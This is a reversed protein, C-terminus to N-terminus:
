ARFEKVREYNKYYVVCSVLKEGHKAESYRNTDAMDRLADAKSAYRNGYGGTNFQVVYYTGNTM